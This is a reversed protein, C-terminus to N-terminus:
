VNNESVFSFIYRFVFLDELREIKAIKKENELFLM